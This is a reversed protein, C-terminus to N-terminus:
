MIYFDSNIKPLFIYKVSLIIDSNGICNNEEYVSNTALYQKTRQQETLIEEDWVEIVKPSIAGLTRQM